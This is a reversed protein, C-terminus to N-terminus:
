GEEEPQLGKTRETMEDVVQHAAGLPRMLLELPGRLKNEHSGLPQAVGSVGNHSRWQEHTM